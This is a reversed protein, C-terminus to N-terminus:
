RKARRMRSAIMLEVLEGSKTSFDRTLRHYDDRTFWSPKEKQVKRIAILEGVLRDKKSEKRIAM